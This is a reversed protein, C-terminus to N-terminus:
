HGLVARRHGGGSVAPYRVYVTYKGAQPVNLQWTFVNTGTGAAHTAHTSGQQGTGHQGDAWTGTASTNSLTPTTSWSWAAQRGARRRGSQVEAQRRPLVVVDHHPEVLRGGVDADAGDAARTRQLRLDTVIDWPDTRRRRGATTSTARLDHRQPGDRGDSPPLSQDEGGPGGRRLRAPTSTRRQQLPRGDPDYRSTSSRRAPEARRVRHRAAFDDPRRGTAVGRPTIM